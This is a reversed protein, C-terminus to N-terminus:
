DKSLADCKIKIVDCRIFLISVSSFSYFDMTKYHLLTFLYPM